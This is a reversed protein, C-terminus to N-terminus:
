PRTRSVQAPAVPPPDDDASTTAAVTPQYIQRRAMALRIHAARAALADAQLHDDREVLVDAHAELCEALFPNLPPLHAVAIQRAEGLLEDARDLEGLRAHARGLHMTPLFLSLREDSVQAGYSALAAELLDVATEADGAAIHARALHTLTRAYWTSETGQTQRRIAVARELWSHATQPDDHVDLYLMGLGDCTDAVRPHEDGFHERRLALAAQYHRESAQGLERLKEIKALGHTLSAAVVDDSGLVAIWDDRAQAITDHAMEYHGSLSLNIARRRGRVADIARVRDSEHPLDRISEIAAIQADAEVVRWDNDGFVLVDRRRAERYVDLAADVDAFNLRAEGGAVFKARDDPWTDPSFPVPEDAAIASGASTGDAETRADFPDDSVGALVDVDVEPPSSTACGGGLLPWWGIVVAVIWVARPAPLRDM